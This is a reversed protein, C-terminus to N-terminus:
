PAPPITLRLVHPSRHDSLRHHDHKTQDSASKAYPNGQVRCLHSRAAEMARSCLLDFRSCGRKMRRGAEENMVYMRPWPADSCAMPKLEELVLDGAMRRPSDHDLLRHEVAADPRWQGVSGIQHQRRQELHSLVRRGRFVFVVCSGLVVALARCANGQCPLSKFCTDSLSLLRNTGTM